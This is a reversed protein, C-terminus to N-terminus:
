ELDDWAGVCILDLNTEQCCSLHLWRDKIDMHRQHVGHDVPVLVDWVEKARRRLFLAHDTTEAEELCLTCLGDISVHHRRLNVLTPISNHFSSWVFHKVKCVGYNM